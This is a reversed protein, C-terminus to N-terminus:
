QVQLTSARTRASALALTRSSGSRLSTALLALSRRRSASLAAKIAASPFIWRVRPSPWNGVFGNIWKLTQLLPVVLWAFIGFDIARVLQSDVSKLIDFDKPGLFFPMNMAGATTVSYSVFTRQAVGTAKADAELTSLVLPQFEVRVSRTGPVAASLFYHDGVGAFRLNGDYVAQELLTSSSPREVDGDKHYIAGPPYTAIMMGGTSYGLGLAPGMKITVPRAMGKVDVSADVSVVYPNNEPQFHFSKRAALGSADQYEFGLTGPASGLSLPGEASPRFKATLLVASVADQDTALTFPRPQKEPMGEPVLELPEGRADYYKKLRWSKLTAGETTFVARVADTEVVIDRASTDGVVTAPLPTTTGAEPSGAPAVAPQTAEPTAVPSAIPPAAPAPPPVIYTQYVWLIGFSLFIALFVRKEM